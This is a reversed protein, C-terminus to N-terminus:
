NREERWQPYKAIYDDALGEGGENLGNVSLVIKEMTEREFYAKADEISGYFALRGTKNSDKALVIVKDFLDIVRDPTHTIVMVIKGQDAIERLQQMLERAMVGDLGSDPEDLIFLSPDGVFEVAISLRKRQGGSLKSVLASQNPTLGFIDMVEKIRAERITSSVETPMRMEAANTLTMLVTDEGRLLDQQPVMGIEYKVKDYNRYIDVEGLRVVAKAKEYGTVANIFTTKGAGSGGLILVMNGPEVTLQIDKLLQHRKHMSGVTREEISIDLTQRLRTWHSYYLSDGAIVFLMKGLRVVEFEAVPKENKVRKHNLYVKKTDSPDSVVWADGKKEIRATLDDASIETDGTSLEERETEGLKVFDILQWVDSDSLPRRKWEVMGQIRSMFVVLVRKGDKEYSISDGNILIHEQGPEVPVGSILTENKDTLSRYHWEGLYHRFLGQEHELWDARIEARHLDNFPNRDKRGATLDDELIYQEPDAGPIIVALRGAERLEELLNLM